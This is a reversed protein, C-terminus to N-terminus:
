RVRKKIESQLFLDYLKAKKPHLLAGLPLFVELYLKHQIPLHRLIRIVEKEEIKEEVELLLAYIEEADIKTSNQMFFVLDDEKVSSSSIFVKRLFPIIEETELDNMSRGWGYEM